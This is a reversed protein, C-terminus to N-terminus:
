CSFLFAVLFAEYRGVLQDFVKTYSQEVVIVKIGCPLSVVQGVEELRRCPKEAMASKM